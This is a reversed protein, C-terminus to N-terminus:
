TEAGLVRVSRAARAVLGNTAATASEALKRIEDAVVAFGTGAEGAHAAVMVALLLIALAAYERSQFIADRVRADEADLGLIHFDLLASISGLRVILDVATSDDIPKAAAVIGSLPSRATGACEKAEELAM